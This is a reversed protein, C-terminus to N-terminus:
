GKNKLRKNRAQNLFKLAEKILAWEAGKVTKIDEASLNVSKHNSRNESDNENQETVKAVYNLADIAVRGIWFRVSGDVHTEPEAAEMISLYDLLNTAAELTDTLSQGEEILPNIHKNKISDKNM